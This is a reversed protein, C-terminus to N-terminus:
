VKGFNLDSDVIGIVLLRQLCELNAFLVVISFSLWTWHLLLHSVLYLYLMNQFLNFIAFVVDHGCFPTFHTILDM